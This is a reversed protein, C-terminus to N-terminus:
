SILYKLFIYFCPSVILMSDMRDLIGGHGQLITGSDKVNAQRKIMSEIADGAQSIIGFIFSLVIFNMFSPNILDINKINSNIIFLIFISTFIFGSISGEWTKNPSISPFIKRKGYTKGGFYAFTDCIWIALFMLLTIEMGFNNRVLIISNFFLIVWFFTFLSISINQIPKKSKRFLESICFIIVILFFLEMNYIMDNISFIHSIYLLICFLNLLFYQVKLDIKKCIDTMEKISVFIAFFILSTFYMGGLYIIFLLLPVGIINVLTRSNGKM